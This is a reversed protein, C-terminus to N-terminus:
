VFRCCPENRALLPTPIYKKRKKGNIGERASVVIFGVLPLRQVEGYPCPFRRRDSKRSESVVRIIRRTVFIIFLEILGGAALTAPVEVIRLALTWRRFTDGSPVYVRLLDNQLQSTLDLLQM